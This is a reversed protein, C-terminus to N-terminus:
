HALPALANLANVVALPRGVQAFDVAVFTARMGRQRECARVRDLLFSRSNVESAATRTPIGGSIWNNVLFLPAVAPGRGRDCSLDAASSAAYPTEAAWAYFNRIPGSTLAAYQTFVFLNHGSGILGRLTPWPQGPDPPTALRDDLGADSITQVVDDPRVDDELILTVVQDPNRDLWGKVRSLQDVASDAGLQCLQHCLWVGPRPELTALFPALAAREAAGLNDLYPTAEAPTTWYHLDLMLGRVGNDLQAILDPDQSSDLFGRDSSAMANHSTLYAVDNYSRDCLDPSGNCVLTTSTPLVAVVFAGVGLASTSVAVVARGARRDRVRLALPILLAVLCATAVFGVLRLFVHQVGIRLERDIDLLLLRTPPNLAHSDGLGRLPDVLSRRLVVGGVMATVVTLGFVIALERLWRRQARFLLPGVGAATMALGLATLWGVGLPLVPTPPTLEDAGSTPSLSSLGARLAADTRAAMQEVAADDLYAPLIAAFAGDLDGTALLARLRPRLEDARDPPLGSTLISAVRDVDRPAVAIDPLQVDAEGVSLRTLVARAKTAFDSLSDAHLRPASVVVGPALQRVLLVLHDVVPQLAESLDVEGSKGLVVDVYNGVAIRVVSELVSPPVLVRANATLYSAEIPLGALGDNLASQVAPSPLVETYARDYGDAASIARADFDADLLTLRATTTVILLTLGLSALLRFSWRTAQDLARQRRDARSQAAPAPSSTM